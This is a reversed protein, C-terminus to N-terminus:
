PKWREEAHEEETHPKDQLLQKLAESYETRITSIRLKEVAFPARERSGKSLRHIATVNLKARVLMHDTWCNAGRMVCVDKCHVRQNAGTMIFDIMHTAKTALHTWTGQHVSKNQFWTNMINMISLENIACVELLVEGAQNREPLGHRGLVGRWLDSRDDLVGVRANFDSLVVLLDTPPAKDMTDQLEAFFKENM